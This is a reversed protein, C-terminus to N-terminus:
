QSQGLASMVKVAVRGGQADAHEMAFFSILSANLTEGPKLWETISEKCHDVKVGPVWFAAGQALQLRAAVDQIALLARGTSPFQSHM